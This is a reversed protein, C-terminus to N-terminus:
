SSTETDTKTRTRTADRMLARADEPALHGADVCAWLDRLLRRWQPLGHAEAHADEGNTDEDSDDAVVYPEFLGRLDEVVYTPRRDPAAAAADALGHVGTLVLVSDMGASVAGEIDTELRDGIALVDSASIGRRQAALEYMVPMPKGVVEPEVDVALRVAAVLSGNGPAFGRDTPLTLDTNTAVWRAGGQIAYAAEALDSATVEKGYGQLVAAPPAESREGPRRPVLGEQTLADAVGEGGIALVAAGAALSRGLVHAGAVSSNVVDDEECMVGLERLHAAVERPPRSANNTAYVVGVGKRTARALADVAHAIAHPGAYVVGDLDCVIGRYGEILSDSSM